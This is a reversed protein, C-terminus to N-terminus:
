GLVLGYRATARVGDGGPVAVVDPESERVSPVIRVGGWEIEGGQPVHLVRDVEDLVALAKEQADEHVPRGQDDRTRDAHVIIVLAPYRTTHWPSPTDV